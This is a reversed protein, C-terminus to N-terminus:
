YFKPKPYLSITKVCICTSYISNTSNPAVTLPVFLANVASVYFIKLFSLKVSKINIQNKLNAMYFLPKMIMKKYVHYESHMHTMTSEEVKQGIGLRVRKSWTSIVQRGLYNRGKMDCLYKYTNIDINICQIYRYICIYTNM